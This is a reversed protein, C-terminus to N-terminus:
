RRPKPEENWDLTVVTGGGSRASISLAAGAEDAREQMSRLGLHSRDVTDPDFGRGDDEVSLYVRGPQTELLVWASSAKAHRSVNNLAEQVIRYITVHLQLPLAAEGRITLHCATGVRGEM